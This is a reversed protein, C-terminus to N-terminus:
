PSAPHHNRCVCILAHDIWSHTDPAGEHGLLAVVPTQIKCSASKADLLFIFLM